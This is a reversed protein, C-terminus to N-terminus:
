SYSSFKSPIDRKELWTQFDTSTTFKFPQDKAYLVKLADLIFPRISEQNPMPKDIHKSLEEALRQLHPSEVTVWYEYESSGWAKEVPKGLDQGELELDGSDTFKARLASYLTKTDVEFLIEVM